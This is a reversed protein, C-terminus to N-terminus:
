IRVILGNKVMLQHALQKTEETDMLEIINAHSTQEFPFTFDDNLSAIYLWAACLKHDKEVGYGNFYCGSLLVQSDLYGKNALEQFIAISQRGNNKNFQKMALQFKAYPEGENADQKLKNSKIKNAVRNIISLVIFSLVILGFFFTLVSMLFVLSALVIVLFIISNLQSSFIRTRLNSFINM